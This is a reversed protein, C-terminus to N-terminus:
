VIRAELDSNSLYILEELKTMARGTDVAEVAIGIGEQLNRAAGAASFVAAANLLVIERHPGKEGALVKKVIQANYLADDGKLDLLSRRPFGFDEPTIYFTNITGRHLHTIRTPGLTSIEDLGGAGHVVYAGEVGLKELVQAVVETLSADYVGVIQFRARAPNTLPGLMNFVTRIGIERRPGIAHKMSKHYIPAFLFGIGIENLIHETKQPSLDIKVGLAELVDASGCKSSVSRNGHKAVPLGAGAAVFCVATSINFTGSEDGGTGCTDVLFPHRTTLREAKARMVQACGLIEEATEGKMRLGTLFSGIQASTAKGDMIEKMVESAEQSSLNERRIVRGIAERIM